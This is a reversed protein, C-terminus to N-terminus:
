STPDLLTRLRRLARHCAVKLATTSLGTRASAENLTLEELKLLRVAQQEAPTLHTVAHHLRASFTEHEPALPTERRAHRYGQRQRDAIRAQAIAALWPAFPRAPDYAHRMRHLTLLIDQVADEAEAANPLARRARARLRPAIAALLTAYARRDGEQARAM